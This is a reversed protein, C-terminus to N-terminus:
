LITLASATMTGGEIAVNGTVELNEVCPNGSQVTLAGTLTTTGTVAGHSSDYGGRITIAGSRALVLNESWPAQTLKIIDGNQATDYAPQLSSYYLSSSGAMRIPGGNSNWVVGSVSSVNGARDRLWLLGGSGPTTTAPQWFIGDLSMEVTGCISPYGMLCMGGDQASANLTWVGYYLALTGSPATRDVLVTVGTGPTEVMGGSTTARSTFTYSGALSTPM